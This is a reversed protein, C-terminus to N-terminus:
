YKLIQGQGTIHFNDNSEIHKVMSSVAYNLEIIAGAIPIDRTGHNQVGQLKFNAKLSFGYSVSIDTPVIRASTIYDGLGELNGGHSFIVMYTFSVVNMNFGNTYTMKYKRATPMSWGSLSQASYFTKESAMPLVSVPTVNVAVKPRGKEVLTYVREALGVIADAVQVWAMVKSAPGPLPMPMPMPPLNPDDPIPMPKTPDTTDDCPVGPPLDECGIMRFLEYDSVYNMEIEQTNFGQSKKSVADSQLTSSFSTLSSGLLLASLLLKM